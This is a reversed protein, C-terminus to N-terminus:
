RRGQGKRKPAKRVMKDVPPAAPAKEAATTQFRVGDLDDEQALGARVLTEARLPDVEVVEGAKRAGWPKLLKVTKLTM